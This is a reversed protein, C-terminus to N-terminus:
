TNPMGTLKDWVLDEQIKMEDFLITAYRESEPFLETKKTLEDVVENNFGSKPRIYNIYDRLTAVYVKKKHM